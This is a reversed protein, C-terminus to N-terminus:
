TANLIEMRKRMDRIKNLVSLQGSRYTLGVPDVRGENDIPPLTAGEHLAASLWEEIVECAETKLALALKRNKEGMVPQEEESM